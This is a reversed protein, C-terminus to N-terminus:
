FNDRKNLYRLMKLEWNLSEYGNGQIRTILLGIIFSKNFFNDVSGFREFDISSERPKDSQIGEHITLYKRVKM